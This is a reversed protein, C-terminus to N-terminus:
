RTASRQPRTLKRLSPLSDVCSFYWFGKAAVCHERDGDDTASVELGHAVDKVLAWLTPSLVTEGPKAVPEALGIEQMPRGAVCFEWRKLGMAGGLICSTLAGCCMAAHLTLKIGEVPPHSRIREHVLLSCAVARRAAEALSRAHLEQSTDVAWCFLIADGSFKICDGGFRDVEDVILSYVEDLEACLLEAGHSFRALKETLATFGSLDCFFVVGNFHSVAPSINDDRLTGSKKQRHLAKLLLYPVFTCYSRLRQESKHYSKARNDTMLLTLTRNRRMKSQMTHWRDKRPAKERTERTSSRLVVAERQTSSAPADVAERQTSSASADVAEKQIASVSASLPAQLKQLEMQTRQLVLTQEGMQARLTSITEELSRERNPASALRGVKRTEKRRRELGVIASALRDTVSVSVGNTSLTSLSGEDDGSLNGASGDRGGRAGHRAIVFPGGRGSVLFM